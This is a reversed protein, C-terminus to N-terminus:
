RSRSATAPPLDVLVSTWGPTDEVVEADFTLTHFEHDCWLHGYGLPTLTASGSGSDTLYGGFTIDTEVIRVKLVEPAGGTEYHEVTFTLPLYSPNETPCAFPDPTVALRPAAPAPAPSCSALAWVSLGLLTASVRRMQNKATGCM